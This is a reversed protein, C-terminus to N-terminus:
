FRRRKRWRGRELIYQSERSVRPVEPRAQKQQKETKPFLQGRNHTTKIFDELRIGVVLAHNEVRKPLLCWLTNRMLDQEKTVSTDRFDFIVPVSSDLWNAPFVEDPFDVFFFGQTNTGRFNDANKRFRLYDRKLRTGDVVWIMNKYFRERSDREERSINSHQFEVVLGYITHVDAVHKEGTKEDPLFIEQWEIPYHNKWARHWETEPEWWSDCMVKRSHAWHHVRQKGCKAIVPQMCGPCVGKLGFKAEVKQNDVVAFRM